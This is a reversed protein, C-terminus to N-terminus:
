APREDVGVAHVPIRGDVVTVLAGCTCQAAVVRDHHPLDVGLGSYACRKEPLAASM